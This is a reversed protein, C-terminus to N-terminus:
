RFENWGCLCALYWHGVSADDRVARLVWGCYPCSVDLRPPAVFATMLQILKHAQERTLLLYGYPTPLGGVRRQAERMGESTIDIGMRRSLGVIWVAQQPTILMDAERAHAKGNSRTV